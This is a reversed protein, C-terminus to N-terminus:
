REVSRTGCDPCYRISGLNSVGDASLRHADLLFASPLLCVCCWAGPRPNSYEIEIVLTIPDHM